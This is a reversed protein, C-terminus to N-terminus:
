SGSSMESERPRSSLLGCSTPIWPFHNPPSIDNGRWIRRFRSETCGNGLSSSSRLRTSRSCRVRRSSRVSCVKQGGYQLFADLDTYKGFMPNYFASKAGIPLPDGVQSVVVGIEGAPIQVWPHKRVTFIPWLKFRVGPMLLKAQYGAEGKFAIPNDTRNRRGSRRIVLGVQTPGIVWTSRVLVVVVITVVVVIGLWQM